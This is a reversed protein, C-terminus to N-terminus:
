KKNGDAFRKQKRERIIEHIWKFKFKRVCIELLFLVISTIALIVTPDFVRDLATVFGDFIKYYEALDEIHAGAGREAIASPSADAKAEHAYAGAGVAVVALAVLRVCTSKCSRSKM